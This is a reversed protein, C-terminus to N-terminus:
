GHEPQASDCAPRGSLIFPIPKLQGEPTFNQIMTFRNDLGRQFRALIMQQIQASSKGLFPLRERLQELSNELTSEKAAKKSFDILKM